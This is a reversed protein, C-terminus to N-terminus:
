PRTRPFDFDVGSRIRWTNTPFLPDFLPVPGQTVNCLEIFEDRTNDLSETGTPIDPPHYMIESIVVPSIRPAANPLGTGSRFQEVTSPNDAGFTRQSMATFDAKGTSIVHRGFSIGNEAAGFEVSGRYGTLTGGFDASLLYVQDGHAANLTFDPSTGIGSTNFGVTAGIGEYFVVFGGPQLVTGGPIRFKKPDDNSNSLWWGSIDVAAAVNVLEIADEFPPDTHTLVENIVV